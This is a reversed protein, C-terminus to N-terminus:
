LLTKINIQYELIDFRVLCVNEMLLYPSNAADGGGRDKSFRKSLNVNAAIPSNISFKAFEHCLESM